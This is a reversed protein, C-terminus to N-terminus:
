IRYGYARLKRSTIHREVTHMDKSCIRDTTSHNTRKYKPSSRQDKEKSTFTIDYINSHIRGLNNRELILELEKIKSSVPKFCDTFYIQFEFAKALSQRWKYSDGKTDFAYLENNIMEFHYDGVPHKIPVFHATNVSDIIIATPYKGSLLDRGHFVGM